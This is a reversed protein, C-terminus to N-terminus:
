KRRFFSSSSRKISQVTFAIEKFFPLTVLKPKNWWFTKLIAQAYYSKQGRDQCVVLVM